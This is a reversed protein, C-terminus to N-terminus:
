SGINDLYTKVKNISITRRVSRDYDNFEVTWNVLNYNTRSTSKNHPQDVSPRLNTPGYM